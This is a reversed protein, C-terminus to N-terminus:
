NYYFDLRVKKDQLNCENRGINFDFDSLSKESSDMDIDDKKRSTLYSWTDTSSDKAREYTNKTLRVDTCKGLAPSCYFVMRKSLQDFNQIFELSMRVESTESWDEYSELEITYM